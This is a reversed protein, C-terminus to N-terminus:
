VVGLLDCTVRGTIVHIKQIPARFNPDIVVSDGSTAFFLNTRDNVRVLTNNAEARVRMLYLETFGFDRPTVPNKDYYIRPEYSTQNYAGQGRVLFRISGSAPARIEPVGGSTDWSLAVYTTSTTSKEQTPPTYLGSTIVTPRAFVTGSVARINITLRPSYSGPGIFYTNDYTDAVHYPVYTRRLLIDHARYTWSTGDFFAHHERLVTDSIFPNPTEGQYTGGRQVMYCNNTNPSEPSSLVVYVYEDSMIMRLNSPIISAYAASSPISSSPIEHGGLKEGLVSALPRIGLFLDYHTRGASSWTQGSNSSVWTSHSTGFESSLGEWRSFNWSVNGSGSSMYYVFSYLGPDLTLPPNFTIPTGTWTGEAIVTSGPRGDTQANRIQWRNHSSSLFRMEALLIRAPFNRTTARWTSTTVQDTNDTAGYHTERLIDPLYDTSSRVVKYFEVKLPGPSGVRRVMLELNDWFEVQAQRRWVQGMMRSGFLAVEVATGGVDTSTYTTAGGSVNFAQDNPWSRTATTDLPELQLYPWRIPFAELETYVIQSM